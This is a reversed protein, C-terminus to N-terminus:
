SKFIQSRLYRRVKRIQYFYVTVYGPCVPNVKPRPLSSLHVPQLSDGRFTEYDNIWTKKIEKLFVAIDSFLKQRAKPQINQSAVIDGTIIGHIVM